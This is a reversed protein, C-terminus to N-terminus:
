YFASFLEYFNKKILPWCKKIFLGNLGDPGPAKDIPLEKVLADIEETGFPDDLGSM